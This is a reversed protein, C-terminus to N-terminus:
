LGEIKRIDSPVKILIDTIHSPHFGIITGEKWPCDKKCILGDKISELIIYMHEKNEYIVKCRWNWSANWQFKDGIKFM